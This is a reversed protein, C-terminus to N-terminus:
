IGACNRWGERHPWGWWWVTSHSVTGGVRTRSACRVRSLPHRLGRFPYTHGDRARGPRHRSTLGTLHTEETVMPGTRGDGSGRRWGLCQLAMGSATPTRASLVSGRWRSHERRSGTLQARSGVYPRRGFPFGGCRWGRLREQVSVPCAV